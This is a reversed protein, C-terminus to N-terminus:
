PDHTVHSNQNVLSMEFLLNSYHMLLLAFHVDLETKCQLTVTAAHRRSFVRSTPAAKYRRPFNSSFRKGGFYKSGSLRGGLKIRYKLVNRSENQTFIVSIVIDPKPNDYFIDYKWKRLLPPFTM